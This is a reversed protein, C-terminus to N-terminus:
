DFRFLRRKCDLSRHLQMRQGRCCVLRKSSRCLYKINKFISKREESDSIIMPEGMYYIAGSIIFTWLKDIKAALFRLNKMREKFINIIFWHDLSDTHNAAVIFRNNSPINELGEIDKTLFNVIHAFFKKYAFIFYDKM